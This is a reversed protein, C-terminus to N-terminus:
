VARVPVFEGKPVVLRVAILDDDDPIVRALMRALSACHIAGAETNSEINELQNALGRLAAALGAAGDSDNGAGSLLSRTEGANYIRAPPLYALEPGLEGVMAWGGVHVGGSAFAPISLGNRSAVVTATGELDAALRGRVRQLELYSTANSQALTEVAQSLAPLAKYADQSGAEAQARTVALRAQAAAYAEQGTGEMLGRLRKVEGFIADTYQQLASQVQTAASSAGGGSGGGFGSSGVQEVTPAKADQTPTTIALLQNAVKIVAAYQKAGDATDKRTAYSEVVARIQDRNANAIQDNTFGTIGAANLDNAAGAVVNARQEAASYYGQYYTAMQQQFAQLGGMASVLGSAAAAGALSVDYLRMGLTAMVANAGTLDGALRQATQATTEGDRAVSKFAEGYSSALQDAQFKAIAADVASKAAAADMGSVNIDLQATYNELASANLGLAEAYAKNAATVNKVSQDIYSTTGADANSWDSNKTDGGGFWGGHQEFDARNAVASAGKGSVNAVIANGKPEVTYDFKSGIFQGIASGIPGGFYGGIGAGVAAGRQGKSWLDIVNIATLVNGANGIFKGIQGSNNLLWSGVKNLTDSGTNILKEGINEVARISSGGFDTLWNTISGSVNGANGGAGKSTGLVQEALAGSSTGTVVALINFIWKRVTMQYLWDLFTAKAVDRLKSFVDQGGQFINTWVNRATQDVSNWLDRFSDVAATKQVADINAAALERMYKAQDRYAQALLPDTDQLLGARRELEAAALEVTAARLNAVERASLGIEANALRQDKVQQRLSEAKAQQAEVTQANQDIAARFLKMDLATMEDVFDSEIGLAAERLRKLDANFKDLKERKADQSLGSKQVAEIELEVLAQQAVNDAEALDRKRQYYEQDTLLGAAHAATLSRNARQEGATSEIQLSEYYQITADLRQKAAERAPAAKQDDFSKLQATTEQANAILRKDRESALAIADEPSAASAISKGFSKAIKVADDYGAQIVDNRLKGAKRADDLSVAGSFAEREAAGREQLRKMEKANYSANDASSQDLVALKQQAQSRLDKLEEIHAARQARITEAETGAGKSQLEELRAINRSYQEVKGSVGEASSQYKENLAYIAGGAAAIAALSAVIPNALVVLGLAKVATILTTISGATAAIGSVIAASALGTLLASFAAENQKITNGVTDVMSSLNQLGGALKSSAGSATDADGVFKTLSNRVMTWAQGVTVSASDMEKALQPGSKELANIVTEATLKGQEGLSRLQGVSVGMGDALAKALRPTQELISNLEEGRLTGSSLGQGLQVLAAQMSQASGGGITMAMGITQTVALLRDQSVGLERGARAITGYTEGLEIFSVRAQQSIQFLREYAVSAEAASNSSLKLNTRLTTCSDALRLIEAAAGVTVIGALMNRLSSTGTAAGRASQDMVDLKTSIGDLEAGVVKGGEIALKLKVENAM